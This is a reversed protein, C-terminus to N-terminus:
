LSSNTQQEFVNRAAGTSPAFYLGRGALSDFKLRTLFIRSDRAKIRRARPSVNAAKAFLLLKEIKVEVILILPSVRM